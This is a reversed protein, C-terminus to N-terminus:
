RPRPPRPARPTRASPGAPGRPARSRGAQRDVGHLPPAAAPPQGAAPPGVEAPEAGGLGPRQEEDGPGRRRGGRVHPGREALEHAGQGLAEPGLGLRRRRASSTSGRCHSWAPTPAGAEAAGRRAAPRPSRRRAPADEAVDGAVAGDVSRVTWGSPRADLPGTQYRTAPVSAPLAREPDVAHRRDLAGGLGDHAGLAEVEGGRPDSIVSATSSSRSGNRTRPARRGGVDDASRRIINPRRTRM